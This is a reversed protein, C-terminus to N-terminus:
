KCLMANNEYRWWSVAQDVPNRVCAVLVPPPQGADRYARAILQPVAPHTLYQACGDFTFFPKGCVRQRFWKVIALPFCMRYQFPDVRGLYHGVFYFTEKHDLEPHKWLCFPPKCGDISSLYQCLTTTGCRVEGLVLIDPLVRFRATAYRFIIELPKLLGLHVSFSPLCGILTSPLKRNFINEVSHKYLVILLVYGCINTIGAFCMLFLSIHQLREWSQTRSQGGNFAVLHLLLQLIFALSFRPLLQGSRAAVVIQESLRYPLTAYDVVFKLTVFRKRRDFAAVEVENQCM